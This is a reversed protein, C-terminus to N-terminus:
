STTTKIKVKEKKEQLEKDFGTQWFYIDILKMIPYYMSYKKQFTAQCDILAKKNTDIFNFLENISNKDFKSHLLGKEKLGKIFYADYAPICSFAGLLIKSILTDTDTISKSEGKREYAIIKYHNSLNNKLNLILNISDLTVENTNSCRLSKFENKYIIDVAGKHILHNKQLL